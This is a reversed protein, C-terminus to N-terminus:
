PDIGFMKMFREQRDSLDSDGGEKYAEMIEHPRKPLDGVGYLEGRKMMIKVEEKRWDVQSRIDEIRKLMEDSVSGVVKGPSGKVLSGEPIDTGETIITDQAIVSGEGISVDSCVYSDMGIFSNKGITCGELRAGPAVFTGDDITTEKGVRVGPMITVDKGVETKDGEVFVGPWLATGEGISVEGVIRAMPDIFFDGSKIVRSEEKSM